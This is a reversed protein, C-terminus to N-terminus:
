VVGTDTPELTVLRRDGESWVLPHYRGPKPVWPCLEVFSEDAAQFHTADILKAIQANRRRSEKTRGWSDFCAVKLYV